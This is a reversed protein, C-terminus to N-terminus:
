RATVKKSYASAPSGGKANYAVVRFRYYGKALRFTYARAKASVPGSVKSGVVRGEVIKSAIVKYSTIAAGGNHLPAAWRATANVPTGAKGSSPSGIRPASPKLAVLVRVTRGPATGPLEADMQPSLKVTHYGYTSFTKTFSRVAATQPLIQDDITLLWYRLYANGPNAAPKWNITAKLGSTTVTIAPATTPVWSAVHRNLTKPVGGGAANLATVAVNVDHGGQVTIARSRTSASVEVPGGEIGSIRYGNPAPGSSPATWTLTGASKSTTLNISAPANPTAGNTDACGTISLKYTGVSGYDSYGTALPDGNGVGDVKVYYTGPGGSPSITDADMGSAIRHDFGGVIVQGSPQDSFAVLTDNATRLDVRLDLGSGASNGLAGVSPAAVCPGVKYYDVDRSTIIGDVTYDTRAGLSTASAATNGADDPLLPLGTAVMTAFDDQKNSADTYDGNSFQFIGNFGAGMIPTWAGQGGYYEEDPTHGDHNLGLTHGIEHATVTATLFANAQKRVWIPEKSDTGSDTPDAFQGFVAIGACGSCIPRSDPDDSFLVHDGYTDDAIGDRHYAPPGTDETTIDVDYATYMEAVIRWLEQIYSHEDANFTGLDGDISFGDYQGNPIGSAFNWYTNSVDAGDFDLFITHKSTPRSHLTFTQAEPFQAQAVEASAASPQAPFTDAYVLQGGPVVQASDDTTLIRRLESTSLGSRRAADDLEDGLRDIAAKGHLGPDTSRDSSAAAAGAVTGTCMSGLALASLSAATLFRVFAM